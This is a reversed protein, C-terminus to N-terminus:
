RSKFRPDKTQLRSCLGHWILSWILDLTDNSLIKEEFWVYIEYTLEEVLSFKLWDAFVLKFDRFRHTNQIYKVNYTTVSKM